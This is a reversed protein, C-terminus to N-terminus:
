NQGVDLASGKSETTVSSGEKTLVAADNNPTPKKPQTSEAVLSTDSDPSDITDSKRIRPPKPLWKNLHQGANEYFAPVAKKAEEVFKKPGRFGGALDVVQLVELSAPIGSANNPVLESPNNVVASLLQSTMRIQRPWYARITLDPEELHSLQKVFWNIAPIPRVRDKPADLRMSLNITRRSFDASFVLKSAANPIDFEAKLCNDKVISGIDEQVNLAADRSRARSLSLHVSKGIALSLEIALYRLLQHWSAVANEIYEAGRKLQVGQHVEACVNKWGPGMTTLSTVGSAKNQFYRVLERLIFAQEPDDVEKNDSLLIAKSVISLWSFHFLKVSRLKHKSVHVPHHTPLTAFQNSITIVADIGLSKALDVYEEIQEKRLVASGIKSEIIASWKLKSGTKVLVLGDPRPEKGEKSKFVVETFCEIKSRKQIPAGADGLIAHAFSPVVMFTAQLSSTAREELKSDSLSPFLRARQRNEMQSTIPEASM